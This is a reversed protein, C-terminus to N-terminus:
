ACSTRILTIVGLRADRGGGAAGESEGLTFPYREQVSSRSFPRARTSPRRPQEHARLASAVMGAFVLEARRHANSGVELGSLILSRKKASCTKAGPRTGRQNTRRLPRSGPRCPLRAPVIVEHQAADLVDRWLLDPM